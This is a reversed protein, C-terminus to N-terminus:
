MNSPKRCVIISLPSRTEYIGELELGAAEIIRRFHGPTREMGNNMMMINIDMMHAFSAAHGYNALLPSPASQVEDSAITTKMLIEAILVRSQETM